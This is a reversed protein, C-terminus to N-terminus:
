VYIYINIWETEPGSIGHSKSLDNGAPIDSLTAWNISRQSVGRQRARLSAEYTTNGQVLVGNEEWKRPIKAPWYITLANTEWSWCKLKSHISLCRAVQTHTRRSCMGTLAMIGDIRQLWADAGAGGLEQSRAGPKQSRETVARHAM